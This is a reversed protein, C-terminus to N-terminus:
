TPLAVPQHDRAGQEDAQEELRGYDRVYGCRCLRLFLLFLGLAVVGFLMQFLLVAAYDHTGRGVAAAAPRIRPYWAIFLGCLNVLMIRLANALLGFGASLTGMRNSPVYDFLLAGFTVFVAAGFVAGVMGASMVFMRSPVGAPAVFSVYGWYLTVYAVHGIIGALVLQTRAVRDALWGVLPMFLAASVLMTPLTAAVMQAKSYGFRETILLPM